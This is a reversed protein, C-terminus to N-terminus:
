IHVQAICAPPRWRVIPMHTGSLQQQQESSAKNGAGKERQRVQNDELEKIKRDSGAAIITKM